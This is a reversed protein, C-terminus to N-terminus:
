TSQDPESFEGDYEWPRPNEGAVRSGIAVTEISQKDITSTQLAAVAPQTPEDSWALIDGGDTPMESADVSASVWVKTGAVFCGTGTVKCKIGRAFTLIDDAKTALFKAAKGGKGIADGVVPIMSTFSLAADVYNGRALHIVGNIGDAIEGVGPILGVVDLALQVGDLIDSASMNSVTDIVSGLTGPWDVLAGVVDGVGSVLGGVFSGAMAFGSWGTAESAWAGADEIWGAATDFLQGVQDGAWAYADLVADIGNWFKNASSLANWTSLGLTNLGAVSGIGLDPIGVSPVSASPLEPPDGSPL